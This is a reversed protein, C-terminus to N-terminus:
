PSPTRCGIKAIQAIIQKTRGQTMLLNSASHVVAVPLYPTVRWFLRELAPREGFGRCSLLQKHLHGSDGSSKLRSLIYALRCYYESHHVAPFSHAREPDLNKIYERQVRWLQQLIGLEREIQSASLSHANADNAGHLRWTSLARDLSCLHTMLPALRQIVCEAYGRFEEPLPFLKQAIERRLSLNSTPPVNPLIGGHDFIDQACWGSPPCRLLPLVGRPRGAADTRIARHAIFGVNPNGRFAAVITALKDPLFTDDADLLCIIGGQSANWSANLCAAMGGHAQEILRIRSDKHSWLSIVRRSNDKSGDDCIILEFHPYTQASVSEICAGVFREYNYCSVLVSVLPKSGLSPLEDPHLVRATGM